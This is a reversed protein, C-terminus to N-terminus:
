QPAVVAVQEEEEHLSLSSQFILFSLLSVLPIVLAFVVRSNTICAAVVLFIACIVNVVAAWLLPLMNQASGRSHLPLWLAFLLQQAVVLGLPVSNKNWGGDGWIVLTTAGSLTYSALILVLLIKYWTSLLHTKKKHPGSSRYVVNALSRFPNASLLHSLAWLFLFLSVFGIDGWGIEEEQM